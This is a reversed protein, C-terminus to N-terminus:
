LSEYKVLRRLNENLVHQVEEASSGWLSALAEVARGVDWPLVARRDIRAFPGDSETLVVGRPMRAALNRGKEGKLMAPGVSFWCGLDIARRLECFNGSFWHLIATGADPHSELADLVASTAHRSHISLIRGGIEVCTQLIHGFVAEQDKWYNRFEPGGDLGIEGVYCTHAILERFLELEVKRQHALQPHLGLATWTQGEALSCTGHWASPTTTVSLVRVGRDACEHAVLQPKPYLDLHCHFDIM